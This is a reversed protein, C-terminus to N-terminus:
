GVPLALAHIAEPAGISALRMTGVPALPPSSALGLSALRSAAGWGGQRDPGLWGPGTTPRCPGAEPEDAGPSAGSSAGSSAGPASGVVEVPPVAGRGGQQGPPGPPLVM